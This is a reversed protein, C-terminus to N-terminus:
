IIRRDNFKIADKQIQPQFGNIDAIYRVSYYQGLSNVYGYEGRVTFTNKRGKDTFGAEEKRYTGDSTQFEFSYAGNGNNSYEYKIIQKNSSNATPVNEVTALLVAVILCIFGCIATSWAYPQRTKIDLEEPIDARLKM